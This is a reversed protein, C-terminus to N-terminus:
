AAKKVEAMVATFARAKEKSREGFLLSDTIGDLDEEDKAQRFDAFEAIANYLGWATGKMAKDEFGTGEGQFLSFAATRFGRQRDKLYEWRENRDKMIEPPATTAPRNPDPFAKELVREVARREVKAKAMARFTKEIGTIREEADEWAHRLWSAMRERAFEDHVVKFRMTALRQSLILTNICVAKIPTLMISAAHLGDMPNVAVFYNEVTDNGIDFQTLATSIVLRREIVTAHGVPEAIQEDWVSAFDQPGFLAYKETVDGWLTRGDNEEAVIGLRGTNFYRKPTGSGMDVILPRTVVDFDAVKKVAERATKFGNTEDFPHWDALARSEFREGLVEPAQVDSM